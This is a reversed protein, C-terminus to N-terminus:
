YVENKIVDQDETYCDDPHQPRFDPMTGEEDKIDYKRVKLKNWNFGDLTYQLEGKVIRMGAIGTCDTPTEIYRIADAKRIIELDLINMPSFRVQDSCFDDSADVIIYWNKPDTGTTNIKLVRGEVHKRLGNQNFEVEILDGKSVIRDKTTGNDFTLHVEISTVASCRINMLM